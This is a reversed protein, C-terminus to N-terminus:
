LVGARNALTRDLTVREVPHRLLWSFTRNPMRAHEVAGQRLLAALSGGAPVNLEGSWGTLGAAEVMRDMAGALRHGTGLDRVDGDLNFHAHAPHPLSPQRLSTLGDAIRLRVFTAAAGRLRGNLALSAAGASWRLAAHRVWRDYGRQDLCGLLYGRVREDDDVAVVATGAGPGLYWGLCLAEYGELVPHDFPLPRGMALTARFIRRVAPADSRRLLRIALRSASATTSPAESM